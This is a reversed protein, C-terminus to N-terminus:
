EVQFQESTEDLARNLRASLVEASSYAPLEVEHSCTHAVPYADEAAGFLLTLKMKRKLGDCPISVRGTAWRLLTSCRESPFALM